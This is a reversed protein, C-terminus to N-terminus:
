TCICVGGKHKLKRCYCSGLVYNEVPLLALEEHHQHHEIICLIHPPDHNFHRLLENMKYRLSRINQHYIKITQTYLSLESLSPNYNNYNDMTIKTNLKEAAHSQECGTCKNNKDLILKTQLVGCIHLDCINQDCVCTHTCRM